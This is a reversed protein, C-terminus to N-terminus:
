GLYRYTIVDTPQRKTDLGPKFDNVYVQVGDDSDLQAKRDILLLSLLEVRM